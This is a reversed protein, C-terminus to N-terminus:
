GRRRPRRRRHVRGALGHEERSEGDQDRERRHHQHRAWREARGGQADDDRDEENQRGRQRQQGRHQRLEAGPDVAKRKGPHAAALLARRAEGPPALAEPAPRVEEAAEREYRQQGQGDGHERQARLHWRDVDHRGAIVRPLAVLLDLRAESFARRAHELDDGRCCRCVLRYGRHSSIRADGTGQRGLGTAAAQRQDLRDGGAIGRAGLQARRDVPQAGLKGGARQHAACRGLVM